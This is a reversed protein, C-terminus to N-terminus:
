SFCLKEYITVGLLLYELHETQAMLITTAAAAWVMIDQATTGVLGLVEMVLAAILEESVELLITNIELAM